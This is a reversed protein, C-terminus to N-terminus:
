KLAEILEDPTVQAQRLLSALTGIKVEGHVPVVCGQEGRRMVVHSGRQRVVEFGLRRLAGIVEQGSIRPLKPM